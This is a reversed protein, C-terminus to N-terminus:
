RKLGADWNIVATFPVRENQAARILFRGDKSVDYPFGTEYGDIAAPFLAKPQGARFTDGSIDVPVAMLTPAGDNFGAFFLQKGDRSWLPTGGGNSSIRIKGGPKPFSQVYVEFRSTEDSAYAIWRTNPSLKAAGERYDSALYPFPTQDGSMPVVWIDQKTREASVTLTLFRGDRSWDTPYRDRLKPIGELPLVREPASGAVAKEIIEGIGNRFAWYVLKTGDPSWIPYANFIPGSTFRSEAGRALDYLWVDSDNPPASHDLAITSGDPSIAGTRGTGVSGVTGIAKGARDFWTLRVRGTAGSTYVLAGNESASFLSGPPESDVHEVVVVAEGSTKWRTLDFPQALLTNNRVFLLHDRSYAVQAPGPVLVPQANKAPDAADVDGVFLGYTGDAGVAGFTFHRGDPLFSPFIASRRQAVIVSPTGGSAPVRMAGEATSFVITDNAGWSAGLLYVGTVNAIDIAPGGTRAVKKLIGFEEYGIWRGDPSWFPLSPRGLTSSLRRAVASDLDRVWIEGGGGGAATTIFAFHQGDPSLSFGATTIPAQEPVISLALKRREETPRPSFVVVYALALAVVTVAAATAWAARLLRSGGVATTRADDAAPETGQSAIWELESRLDRASQWRNEPDKELCRRLTRDLAAPAIGAVSPAPRELIAGIVSAPSDGDFARKGTLMEYLVLGFSFIDSAPGVPQGQLQEPSMYNLTGVIRGVGTLAMTAADAGALAPELTALGFDLLKVSGTKTLMINAPKLDRHTIGKKHAAELAACIQAAYKLAQELPRPGALPAGDLYEMVLYNPGVDHLTCIHPHNLAAAARAEREVRESFNEKSIKVAVIRDLRTDRARYVDGM